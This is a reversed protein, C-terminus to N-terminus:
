CFVALLFAYAQRIDKLFVPDDEGLFYIEAPTPWPHLQCPVTEVLIVHGRFEARLVTGTQSHPVFKLERVFPWFDASRFQCYGIAVEPTDCDIFRERAPLVSDAPQSSNQNM